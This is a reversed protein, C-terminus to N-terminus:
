VKAAIDQIAQMFADTTLSAGGVRSLSVNTIKKGVILNKNLSSAFRSLYRGSERNTPSDYSFSVDSIIGNLINVTVHITEPMGSPTNYSVNDVYQVPSSTVPKPTPVSTQPTNNVAPNTNVSTDTTGTPVSNQTNTNVPASVPKTSPKYTTNTNSVQNNTGVQSTGSLSNDLINSAINKSENDIGSNSKNTNVYITAGAGAVILVVLLFFKQQNTM